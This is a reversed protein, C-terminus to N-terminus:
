LRGVVHLAEAILIAVGGFIFMVAGVLCMLSLYVPVSGCTLIEILLDLTMVARPNTLFARRYEAFLRWGAYGVVIGFMIVAIAVFIINM